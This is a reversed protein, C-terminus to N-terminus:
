LRPTLLPRALISSAFRQLKTRWVPWDDRWWRDPIWVPYFAMSYFSFWGVELTLYIVIHFLFGYWLAFRRTKPHLVLLTFLVEWALALYGLPASIWFPIPLSAYSWRVLGLDNFVYHLSTGQLWTGHLGGKLKAIGTAAYMVCLQIQMLRVAWPEVFESPRRKADLAWTGSVPAFMLWFLHIQVIDDGGNKVNTNRSFFAMTLLWAAFASWRTKYGLMLCLASVVWALFWLGLVWQSESFFFLFPWRWNSAMWAENLAFSGTGNPGFLYGWFPLYQFLQDTLLAAGVLIRFAALREARVPEHWFHELATRARQWDPKV